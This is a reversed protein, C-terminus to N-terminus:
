VLLFRESIVAAAAAVDIAAMDEPPADEPPAFSLQRADRNITQWRLATASRRRTYFAATPRDLAGAIHLPGTSGSIFLDCVAIHRCFAELGDTSHHIVHPVGALREAVAQAQEFEAPGATIVVCHGARSRLARALHAYQAADLNNASGGSGPHVFVLRRAPDIGHRACFTTRTQAVLTPDFTLYPPGPLVIPERAIDRLYYMVLDRNYVFEPRESRSRRQTLRKNYFVQAIKTAPALRYRIGSLALALGIRGTSFLAIAATYREHRLAGALRLCATMGDGPDTIVRDLSPCLAAVPATYPSVLAHIAATPLAARLTALAPWALMFDGLKDNRVVLIKQIDGAM